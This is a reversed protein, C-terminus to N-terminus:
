RGHINRAYMRLYEHAVDEWCMERAFQLANSTIRRRLNADERVRQFKEAFDEPSSCIIMIGEQNPMMSLYDEKLPNNFLSFVLAESVMAELITLYGSVFAYKCRALYPLPDIIKGEFTVSHYRICDSRKLTELLSGSGCIYVRMKIGTREGLLSLGEFYELIGTDRELRGVFVAADEKQELLADDYDPNDVAGWLVLECDTGYWKRIYEGICVHGSSTHECVKRRRKTRPEPPYREFGHFTVFAPKWFYMIRFPLYWYYYATYDHCHIVDANSILERHTWIWKWVFARRNSQLRFVDIGEVSDEHPQANGPNPTIVTVTHGLEILEESVRKVHREVGGVNPHFSPTFM